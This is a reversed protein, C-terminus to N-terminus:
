GQALCIYLFFILRLQFNSSNEFDFNSPKEFWDWSLVGNLQLVTVKCRPYQHGQMGANIGKMGLVSRRQAKHTFLIAMIPM